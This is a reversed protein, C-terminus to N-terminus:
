ESHKKVSDLLREVAQQVARSGGPPLGLQREVEMLREEHDALRQEDVAVREIMTPIPRERRTVTPEGVTGRGGPPTQITPPTKSASAILDDVRGLAAQDSGSLRTGRPPRASDLRHRKGEARGGSDRVRGTNAYPQEANAKAPLWAEAEHLAVDEQYEYNAV